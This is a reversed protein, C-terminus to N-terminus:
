PTSRGRSSPPGNWLPGFLLAVRWGSKWMRRTLVCSSFDVQGLRMHVGPLDSDEPSAARVIWEGEPVSLFEFGGDDGSTVLDEERQLGPAGALAVGFASSFGSSPIAPPAPISGVGGRILQVLTKKLPRGSEDLVVGSVRHVRATRLRIEVEQERTVGTINLEEGPPELSSPYFSSVREVRDGESPPKKARAPRASLQCKAPSVPMFQFGGDKGSVADIMGPFCFLELLVDPAPKGDEDLVLGRLVVLPDLEVATRAADPGSVVVAALRGNLM